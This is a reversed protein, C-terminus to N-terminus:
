QEIVSVAVDKWYIDNGIPLYEGSIESRYYKSPNSPASTGVAFYFFGTPLKTRIESMQADTIVGWKINYTKKEAIVDGIMKGKQTTGGETSQARGTNESWIIEFTPTVEIPSPLESLSSRGAYIKLAM